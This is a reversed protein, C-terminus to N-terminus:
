ILWQCVGIPCCTRAITVIIVLSINVTRVIVYVATGTKPTNVRKFLNRYKTKKAFGDFNVYLVLPM